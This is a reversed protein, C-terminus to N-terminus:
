ASVSATEKQKKRKFPQISEMRKAHFKDEKAEHKLRYIAKNIIANKACFHMFSHDM